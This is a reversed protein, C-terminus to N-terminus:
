RNIMFTALHAFFDHMMPRVSEPFASETLAGEMLEMWRDRAAQTIPFPMHRGRLRPHGRQEIYTQPGGFRYILYDRLRQEAAEMEHKPYMPGLIPDAPVKSYFAHVLRDFGEAGVHAYVENEEV